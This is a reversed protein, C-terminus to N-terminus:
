EQQEAEIAHRLVAILKRGERSDAEWQGHQANQLAELAQRVVEERLTVM